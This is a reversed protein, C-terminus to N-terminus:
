LWPLFVGVRPAQGDGTGMQVLWKSRPITSVVRFLRQGMELQAGLGPFGYKGAERPNRWKFTVINVVGAM